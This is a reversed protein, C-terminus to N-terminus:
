PCRGGPPDLIRRVTDVLVRLAREQRRGFVDIRQISRLTRGAGIDLDPIEGEDLRVPILWEADPRRIRLQEIALILEENQYSVQRSESNSSFCAIFALTEDNIARRIQM